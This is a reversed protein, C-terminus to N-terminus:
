KKWQVKDLLQSEETGIEMTRITFLNKNDAKKREFVFM